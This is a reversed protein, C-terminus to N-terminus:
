QNGSHFKEHIERLRADTVHTYIQTTAVNKHGLLEQVSRLDAGHSLLDTAFSHRLAHPSFKEIIGAKKCYKDVLREISRVSLRLKEVSLGEPPKPGSYRIFLAAYPDDRKALYKALWEKAKRSLFVVRPKRGKGIVGFEGQEVNVKDRNLAALESVRLGTSFLVELITRDRLGIIDTTDVADFIRTLDTESITKVTREGAKGLEIVDPSMVSVKQKILFRLLSRLAVLFYMQTQRTLSGKYKNQYTHSIYLRFRRVVTEDIKEVPFDEAKYETLLWTKFFELYYGYMTVTKPSLNRDVESYELFLIVAEKIGM